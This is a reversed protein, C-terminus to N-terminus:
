EMVVTFVIDVCICYLMMMICPSVSITAVVVVFFFFSLAAVLLGRVGEAARKCSM